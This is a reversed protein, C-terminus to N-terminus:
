GQTPPTQTPPPNNIKDLEAQVAANTTNLEAIDSNLQDSAAQIQARSAAATATLADIDAQNPQNGLAQVAVFLEDLKTVSAAALTMSSQLVPQFAAIVASQNAIVTSQNAIETQLGAIDTMITRQNDLIQLLLQRDSFGALSAALSEPM